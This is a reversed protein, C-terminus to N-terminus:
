ANDGWAKMEAITRFTEREWPASGDDVTIIQERKAAPRRRLLEFLWTIPYLLVWTTGMGVAFSTIVTGIFESM